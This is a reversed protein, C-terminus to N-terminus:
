FRFEDRWRRRWEILPKKWNRMDLCSPLATTTLLRLKGLTLERAATAADLKSDHEM